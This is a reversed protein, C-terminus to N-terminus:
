KTNKYHEEIAQQYQEETWLTRNCMSKLKYSALEKVILPVLKDAEANANMSRCANSVLDRGFNSFRIKGNDLNIVSIYLLKNFASAFEPLTPLAYHGIVCKAILEQCSIEGGKDAYSLGLLIQADVLSFTYM